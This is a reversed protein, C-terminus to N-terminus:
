EKLLGYTQVMQNVAFRWNFNQKINGSCDATEFYRKEKLTALLEKAIESDDLSVLKGNANKIIEPIAGAATAIIYKNKLAADLVTFCFGEESSLQVYIDCEDYFQELTEETVSTLLEVFNELKFDIINAKIYDYYRPNRVPGIIRWRFSAGKKVLQSAIQIIRHQNKHPVIGGVTLINIDASQVEGKTNSLVSLHEKYGHGIVKILEPPRYKSLMKKVSSSPVIYNDFNNKCIRRKNIQRTIIKRFEDKVFFLLKDGKWSSRTEAPPVNHITVFTKIGQQKIYEVDLGSMIFMGYLIHIAMVNSDQIYVKIFKNVESIFKYRDERFVIDGDIARIVPLKVLLFNNAVQTEKKEEKESILTPVILMIDYGLQMFQETIKKVYTVAGGIIPDYHESIFIIQSM